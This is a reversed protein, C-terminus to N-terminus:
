SELSSSSGQERGKDTERGALARNRRHLLAMALLLGVVTVVDHRLLFLITWIALGFFLAAHNFLHSRASLFRHRAVAQGVVFITVGTLGALALTPELVAYM